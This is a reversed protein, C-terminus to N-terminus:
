QDQTTRARLLAAADVGDPRVPFAALMQAPTPRPADPVPIQPKSADRLAQRYGSWAERNAVYRDPVALLSDTWNLEASIIAKVEYVQPGKAVAIEDASLDELELTTLDIRQSTPDINLTHGEPVDFVVIMGGLLPDGGPANDWALICGTTPSYHVRVHNM